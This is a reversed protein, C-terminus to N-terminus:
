AIVLQPKDLVVPIFTGAAAITGLKAGKTHRLQLTVFDGAGSDHIFASETFVANGITLLRGTGCGAGSTRNFETFTGFQNPFTSFYNSGQALGIRIGHKVSIVPSLFGTLTLSDNYM